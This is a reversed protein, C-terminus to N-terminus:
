RNVEISLDVEQIAGALKIAVQIPPCKRAERDPQAQLAMPQVYIYYGTKMFDGTKLQGFELPSTWVGPGVLGNAVAQDLVQGIVTVFQNAGADTQPIKTPSTYMLNYCANQLADQLWNLGHIEDAWAPGSMTGYQIIKTDNVYNVFVNCRKSQLANAQTTSLEEGTVGPEQKYMLTITSNNANFNVSFMRGLLSAIAFLSSSSYQVISQLYGGDKMRSAIDNSVLASLANTDQTTVGFVRKLDFAEVVACVDVNQDDTPQVSAAFTVGYWQSSLNAFRAVCEAPTEADAGTVLQQATASTLKLQASIDTGSGATAYGVASPESGGSLTGGSVTIGSSSEALTYGNGATGAAAATCTTVAGSTSYTMVTLSANVSSQLFGQLNAATAEKTPGVVVNNGATVSPVFTLTVGNVTLTDPAVGGSLTGGSLDIDTPNSTAITISNGATGYARATAHIVGSIENYTMAAIEAIASAQLWALLNATTAAANGGILVQPGTPSSSVFTIAQGNVTLTDAPDPNALLEITGSAQAGYSPNGTFTITGTAKAGDGTSNSTVVFNTGNWSVVAGTLAGNIVSAVGNMNTVGSFDLGSLTKTVGDVVIVVGGNTIVTWNSLQQQSPSLIGGVNLGSSAQRLWRGAMITNPKPTQGFYLAAAKSEPADVGFDDAFSEYTNYTRLENPTLVDSDGLVMLIGFSRRAAALPALNVVARVLRSVPLAM